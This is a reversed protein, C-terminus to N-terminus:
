RGMFTLLVESAARGDHWREVFARRDAAASRLTPLTDLVRELEDGLTAPTTEIIPIQAPVRSRLADGVHGLVVAGSALGECALVGYLGLLVQDIVIDAERILAAAEAPQMGTVRQYTITGADIFPALATEIESTGKLRPNSPAHVVLPRVRDSVQLPWAALDVVVPLWTAEPLYELQDPTSVFCPGGFQAALRLTRDAVSQLKKTYPDRPDKFPSFQHSLAHRRPDRVESGHFVLGVKVGAAALTAVDAGADAGSLGGFLPRGAEILAHTWTERARERLNLGWTPDHAFTWPTVATDAPYDYKGNVIAIVQTSIAPDSAQLARTWAWAQGASNTPGIGLLPSRPPAVYPEPAPEIGATRDEPPVTIAPGLLSHYLRQIALAQRPWTFVDRVPTTAFHAKLSDRRELVRTVAAALGEADDARHVEGLGHERVFEAQARCDSVVMPVGAHLYEFLKNALAFEHSGYHRLPILGVDATRLFDVVEHPPVPDLAHVRDAVGLSAAQTLIARMAHSHVSPVAVIALHAEPLLPLAAVATQVGRAAQVGGSYVLLPVGDPVEAASRVDATAARSGGVPPINLAVVPRRALRYRRQLADALEESVTIVADAGRIYEAELTAWAAVSRRSRGAYQSLGSVWEHADYVWRVTRGEARARAVARAAVPLMEVDHAHIVDAALADIVPGYSLEYDNVQPHVTRWRAGVPVENRARDVAGWVARSLKAGVRGAFRRGRLYHHQLQERRDPGPMGVRDRRRAALERRLVADREGGLPRLGPLGAVRRRLDRERRAERLQFDVPVRTIRVSGLREDTRRRESALAVLTVRAGTAAVALASKRVRADTRADNSVLMVVHVGPM